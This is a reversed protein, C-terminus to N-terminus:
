KFFCGAKSKKKQKKEKRKGKGERGGVTRTPCKTLIDLKGAVRQLNDPGTRHYPNIGKRKIGGEEEWIRITKIGGERGM